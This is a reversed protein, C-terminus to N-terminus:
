QDPILDASRKCHLIEPPLIMCHDAEAFGGTKRRRDSRSHPVGSVTV